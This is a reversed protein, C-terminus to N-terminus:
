KRTKQFRKINLETCIRKVAIAMQADITKVSIDMIKSVEKYSLGDERIMRFVSQCKRPLENVVHEMRSQLEDDLLQLYPDRQELLDYATEKELPDYAM